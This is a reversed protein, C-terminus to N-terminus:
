REELFSNAKPAPVSLVCARVCKSLCCAAVVWGGTMTLLWWCRCFHLRFFEEASRTMAFQSRIAPAAHKRKVLQKQRTNNPFVIAVNWSRSNSQDMSQWSHGSHQLSDPKYFLNNLHQHLPVYLTDTKEETEAHIHSFNSYPAFHLLSNKNPKM